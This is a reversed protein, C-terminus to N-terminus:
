VVLHEPTGGANRTPSRDASQPAAVMTPRGQPHRQTCINAQRQIAQVSWRMCSMKRRQPKSSQRQLEKGEAAEGVPQRTGGLELGEAEAARAGHAVDKQGRCRQGIGDCFVSRQAEGEHDEPISQRFQLPPHTDDLLSNLLQRFVALILVHRNRLIQRCFESRPERLAKQLVERLINSHVHQRVSHRKSTGKLLVHSRDLDQVWFLVRLRGRALGGPM